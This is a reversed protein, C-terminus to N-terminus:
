KKVQKAIDDYKGLLFKGVRKEFEDTLKEVEPSYDKTELILDLSKKGVAAQSGDEQKAEPDDEKDPKADNADQLAEPTASPGGIGRSALFEAVTVDGGEIPPLGFAERAENVFYINAQTALRIQLKRQNPDEAEPDEEVTTIPDRGFESRAENRDLIGAKFAPVVWRAKEANNEQLAEIKTLDFKLYEGGRMLGEFASNMEAEVARWKPV